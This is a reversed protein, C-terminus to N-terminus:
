CNRELKQQVTLRRQEAPTARRQLNNLNHNGNTSSLRMLGSSLAASKRKMHKQIALKKERYTRPCPTEQPLMCPFLRECITMSIPRHNALRQRVITMMESKEKADNKIDRLRQIYTTRRALFPRATKDRLWVSRDNDSGLYYSFFTRHLRQCKSKSPSMVTHKNKYSRAFNSAILQSADCYECKKRKPGLSTRINKFNFSCRKFDKNILSMWRNNNIDNNNKNNNNSKNKNNNINNNSKENNNSKNKNSNKNINNSSKNINKNIKNGKNSSKNINNNSKNINKNAININSDSKNINNNANKDYSMKETFHIGSKNNKNVNIGYNM